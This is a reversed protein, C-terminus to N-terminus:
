VIIFDQDRDPRTYELIAELAKEKGHNKREDILKRTAVLSDGLHNAPQIIIANFIKLHKGPQDKYYDYDRIKAEPALEKIQKLIFNKDVFEKIDHNFIETIAINALSRLAIQAINKDSFNTQQINGDSCNIIIITYETNTNGEKQIERIVDGLPSVNRVGGDVLNEHKENELYKTLVEKVPPFVIPMVTSALIGLAFDQDSDFENHKLSYYAGDNLSVYGCKFICEVIRDRKALHMLKKRLPTNDTISKFGPLHTKLENIILPGIKDLVKQEKNKSFLIKVWQWFSISGLNLGPFLKKRISELSLKFQITENQSRTDIFDSTYIEEVGNQAIDEWYENLEDLRDSAVLLGNLAGVSVGAVIDFKMMPNEPNLSAWNEKLQQLAGVQFAGLFGGGSLVLAFKKSKSSGM